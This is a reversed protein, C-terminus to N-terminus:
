SIALQTLNKYSGKQTQPSASPDHPSPSPKASPYPSPPNLTTQQSLPSANLRDDIPDSMVTPFQWLSKALYLCHSTEFLSQRKEIQQRFTPLATTIARRAAPLRSTSAVLATALGSRGIM